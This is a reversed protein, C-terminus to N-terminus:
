GKFCSHGEINRNIVMKKLWTPFINLFFQLFQIPYMCCRWCSATFYWWLNGLSYNYHWVFYLTRRKRILRCFCDQQEIVSLIYMTAYHMYTFLYTCVLTALYFIKAYTSFDCIPYVYTNQLAKSHFTKTHKM